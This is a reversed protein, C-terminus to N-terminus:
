LNKKKGNRKKQKMKWSPIKGEIAGDKYWVEGVDMTGVKPPSPAKWEFDESGRGDTGEVIVTSNGELPMKSELPAMVENPQSFSDRISRNFVAQAGKPNNGKSEMSEYAKWIAIKEDSFPSPFQKLAREFIAEAEDMDGLMMEMNSWATIAPVNRADADLARNFCRRAAAHDGVRAELVGWAQWLRTCRRGGSQGGSRQACAWIGQQFIDRADEPSGHRTELVGWAQWVAPHKKSALTGRRMLDRAGDIDGCDAVFLAYAQYVGADRKNVALAREFLDIVNRSNGDPNRSEMVAHAQLAISNRKDFKLVTEFCKRAEDFNGEDREMVGLQCWAASCRPDIELAKRFLERATNFDRSYRFEMGAWATYVYSSPKMQAMRLEREAARYCERGAEPGQRMKVVRLQALGVWAAAHSPVKKVADTFLKEASSLNGRREQLLALATMIYANDPCVRLGAKLISVPVGTDSPTRRSAVRSLGIYVRGDTPDMNLARTYFEHAEDLKGRGLARRAHYTLRDLNVKLPRSLRVGDRFQIASNSSPLSASYDYIAASPSSSPRSTDSKANPDRPRVKEDRVIGYVSEEVKRTLRRDVKKRKSQSPNDGQSKVAAKKSEAKKNETESTIESRKLDKDKQPPPLVAPEEKPISMRVAKGVASDRTKKTPERGKAKSVEAEKKRMEEMDALPGLTKSAGRYGVVDDIFKPQPFLLEFSFISPVAGGEVSATQMRM